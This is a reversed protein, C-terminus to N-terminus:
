HDGEVSILSRSPGFYAVQGSLRSALGAFGAARGPSLTADLRGNTAFHLVNTTGDFFTAWYGRSPDEQFSRVVGPIMGSTDLVMLPGVRQAVIRCGKDCAVVAPEQSQAPTGSLSVALLPVAFLSRRSFRSMTQLIWSGVLTDQYM